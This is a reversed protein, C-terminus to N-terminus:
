GLTICFRRLVSPHPVPVTCNIDGRTRRSIVKWLTREKEANWVFSPPNVFGAPRPVPIRVFVRFEPDEMM